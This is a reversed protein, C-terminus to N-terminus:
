AARAAALPSAMDDEDMDDLEEPEEGGAEGEDEMEGAPKGSMAAEVEAMLAEPDEAMGADVMMGVLLQAVSMVTAQAVDDPIQVGSGAAAKGIAEVVGGLADAIAPAPGRVKADRAIAEAAKPSTVSRAAQRAATDLLKQKRPDAEM